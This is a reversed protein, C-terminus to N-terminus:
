LLQAVNAELVDHKIQTAKIEDVGAPQVEDELEVALCAPVCVLEGNNGPRGGDLSQELQGACGLMQAEPAGRACVFQVVIARGLWTV